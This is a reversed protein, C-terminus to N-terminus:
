GRHAREIAPLELADQHGKNWARPLYEQIRGLIETRKHSPVDLRAGLDMLEPGGIGFEGQTDNTEPNIIGTQTDGFILAETGRLLRDPRFYMQVETRVHKDEVAVTDTWAWKYTYGNFRREFVKRAKDPNDSQEALSETFDVAVDDLATFWRYTMMAEPSPLVTQVGEQELRYGEAEARDDARENEITIMNTVESQVTLYTM